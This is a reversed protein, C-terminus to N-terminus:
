IGNTILNLDVSRTLRFPHMGMESHYCRCRHVDNWPMARPLNVLYLCDKMKLSIRLLYSTSQPEGDARVRAALSPELLRHHRIWCCCHRHAAARRIHWRRQVRADPRVRQHNPQQLSLFQVSVNLMSECDSGDGGGGTGWKPTDTYCARLSSLLFPYPHCLFYILCTFHSASPLGRVSLRRRDRPPTTRRGATTGTARTRTRSCAETRM